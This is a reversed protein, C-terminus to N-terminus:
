GGDSAEESKGQGPREEGGTGAESRELYQALADVRTEWFRQHLNIWAQAAALPESSLSLRHERGVVRRRVLGAGELVKVHKSVGNLSMTFKEAVETLTLEREEALREVIARRTAASLAQYVHDLQDDVM